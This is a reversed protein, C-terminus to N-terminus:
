CMMFNQAIFFARQNALNWRGKVSSPCEMVFLSTLKTKMKQMLQFSVVDQVVSTKPLGADMDKELSRVIEPKPIDFKDPSKKDSQFYMFSKPKMLMVEAHPRKLLELDHLWLALSLDATSSEDGIDINNDEAQSSLEEYHENDSMEQIFFLAEVFEINMSETPNVLIECLKELDLENDENFDFSFGRDILYREYGKLFQILNDQQIKKLVDPQAFRKLNYTSM